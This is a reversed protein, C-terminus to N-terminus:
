VSKRGIILQSAAKRFHRMQRIFERLVNPYVLVADVLSDIDLVLQSFLSKLRAYKLVKEAKLSGALLSDSTINQTRDISDTLSEGSLKLLLYQLMPELLKEMMSEEDTSTVCCTFLEKLDELKMVPDKGIMSQTCGNCDSYMKHLFRIVFIEGRFDKWEVETLIENDGITHSQQTAKRSCGEYGGFSHPSRGLEMSDNSIYYNSWQKSNKDLSSALKIMAPEFCCLLTTSIRVFRMIGTNTTDYSTLLRGISKSDLWPVHRQIIAYIQVKSLLVPNINASAAMIFDEHLTLIAQFGPTGHQTDKLAKVLEASEIIRTQYCMIQKRTLQLLVSTVEKQSPVQKIGIAPQICANFRSLNQIRMEEKYDMPDDANM